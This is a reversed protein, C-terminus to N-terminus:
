PGIELEAISAGLDLRITSLATTVVLTDLAVILSAASALALVWRSHRTETTMCTSVGADGRISRHTRTGAPTQMHMRVSTSALARAPSSCANWARRLRVPALQLHM